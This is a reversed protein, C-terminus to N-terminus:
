EVNIKFIIQSKKINQIKSKTLNFRDVFIEIKIIKQKGNNKNLM